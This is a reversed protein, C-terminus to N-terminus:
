SPEERRSSGGGSATQAIVENLSGGRFDDIIKMKLKPNLVQEVSVFFADLDIHFHLSGHFLIHALVWLQHLCSKTM